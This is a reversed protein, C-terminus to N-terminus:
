CPPRYADREGELERHSVQHRNSSVPYGRPTQRLMLEDSLESLAEIRQKLIRLQCDVESLVEERHQSAAQRAGEVAQQCATEAREGISSFRSDHADVRVRLAAVRAETDELRKAERPSDRHTDGHHEPHRAFDPVRMFEKEREREHRERELRRDIENIVEERIGQLGESRVKLGDLDMRFRMLQSEAVTHQEGLRREFGALAGEIQGFWPPPDRVQLGEIQEESRRLASGQGELEEEVQQLKQMCIKGQEAIDELRQLREEQEERMEVRHARWQSQVENVTGSVLARAERMVRTTEAAFVDSDHWERVAATHEECTVVRSELNKLRAEMQFGVRELQREANHNTADCQQQLGAVLVSIREALQTVKMDTTGGLNQLASRALDQPCQLLVSGGAGCGHGDVMRRQQSVIRHALDMAGMAEAQPWPDQSRLINAIRAADPSPRSEDRM